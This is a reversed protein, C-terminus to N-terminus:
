IRWKRKNKKIENIEKTEVPDVRDIEEKADTFIRCFLRGLPRYLFSLLLWLAGGGLLVILILAPNV